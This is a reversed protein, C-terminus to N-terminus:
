LSGFKLEGILEYGRAYGVVRHVYERTEDFPILECFVDVPLDGFLGLWRGLNGPGANYAAFALEKRDYRKMLWSLYTTGLRVNLDPKYLSEAGGIRTNTVRAMEHATPVMLQMLGRAGAPSRANVIFRSEQRIIAFVDAPKLGKQKAAAEIVDAFHRPHRSRLTAVRDADSLEALHDYRWITLAIDAKLTEGLALFGDRLALAEEHTPIKGRAVKELLRLGELRFSRKALAVARTILTKVHSAMTPKEPADFPLDLRQLQLSALREDARVAYYGVPDDRVIESYTVQALEPRATEELARAYWYRARQKESRKLEVTLLTSLFQKAAEFDHGLYAAFGLGFLAEDRGTTLPHEVLLRQYLTQALTLNKMRTALGGAAFLAKASIATSPAYDAAEIYGDLARKLHQEREDVDAMRYRAEGSADPDGAATLAQAYLKVAADFHRRKLHREAQAFFDDTKKHRKAYDAVGALAQGAALAEARSSHHRVLYRLRAEAAQVNKVAAYARGCALLREPTQQDLARESDKCLALAAEADGLALWAQVRLVVGPEAYIGESDVGELATIAAKHDGRDLRLKGLEFLHKDAVAPDKDILRMLLPEAKEPRKTALYVRALLADRQLASEEDLAAAPLTKLLQEALPFAKRDILHSAAAFQKDTFTSGFATQSGSTTLTAVLTAWLLLRVM